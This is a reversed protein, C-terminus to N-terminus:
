TLFAITNCWCNFYISVFGVRFTTGCFLNSNQNYISTEVPFILLMCAKFLYECSNKFLACMDRLGFFRLRRCFILYLGEIRAVHKTPYLLIGYNILMFYMFYFHNYLFSLELYKSYM